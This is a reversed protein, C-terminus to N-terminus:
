NSLKSGKPIIKVIARHGFDLHKVCEHVSEVTIDDYIMLGEEYEYGEQLARIIDMAVTEFQDMSRISSAKYKAKLAKFVSSSIVQNKLLEVQKEVLEIFADVKETQAYFLIYGHDTTFDCEAGCSATIIRNDIWTQYEPNMSSFNAELAMEISQDLKMAQLADKIGQLKYAVCVYPVSIDMKKEFYSRAVQQPEEPYYCHYVECIKSPVNKQSEKIWNMIENPNKGTVGILCLRSPDYNLFYFRQLDAVTMNQIDKRSGLIDNILPHNSYLSKLTETVLQQEPNQFTMDYESLIIGKEKEVSSVDIDLNEVFRLLLDISKKVDSTTQFYYATEKYSTFANTQAQYMAFEESVDKGDLRFMQHELFHACGSPHCIVEHNSIQKTDFGGVFTTCMFLSKVFNPKHVLVVKLGNELTEQHMKLSKIRM